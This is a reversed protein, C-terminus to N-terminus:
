KTTTKKATTKKAAPKRRTTTKRKPPYVKNKTVESIQHRIISPDKMLKQYFEEALFDIISIEYSDEWMKIFDKKPIMEDLKINISIKDSRKVASFMQYIPDEKPKKVEEKVVNSNSNSNSQPQPNNTETHTVRENEDYMSVTTERNDALSVDISLEPDDGVIDALKSAQNAAKTRASASNNM